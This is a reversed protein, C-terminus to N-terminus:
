PRECSCCTRQMLCLGSKGMLETFQLVPETVPNKDAFGLRQLESRLSLHQQLQCLLHQRQHFISDTLTILRPQGRQAHRNFAVAANLPQGGCQRMEAFAPRLNIDIESGADTKIRLRFQQFAFEIHHQCGINILLVVPLQCVRRQKIILHLQHHGRIMRQGTTQMDLRLIQGCFGQQNIRYLTLAKIDPPTEQLRGTNGRLYFGHIVGQQHDLHHGGTHPDGCQRM